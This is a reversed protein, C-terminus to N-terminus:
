VVAELSHPTSSNKQDPLQSSDSSIIATSSSDKGTEASAGNTQLVRVLWWMETQTIKRYSKPDTPDGLERGAADTWNWALIRGALMELIEGYTDIMKRNLDRMDDTDGEAAALDVSLRSYESMLFTEGLSQLPLLDLWQDVHPYIVDEGMVAPCEDCAIRKTLTGNGM